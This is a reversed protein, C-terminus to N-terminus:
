AIAASVTELPIVAAAKVLYRKLSDLNNHRKQCAMDELVAWLKYDLPNLDPSGSPWDEARVFAPVNRAAVGLDDQDRPCSIREAPLGMESWEFITNLPKVLGQLLDEQNVRAGTKVDKESFHLPTVGIPGGGGWWVMVYSPTIVEQVRLVCRLPRKIM